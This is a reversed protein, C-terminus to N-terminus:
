RRLRLIEHPKEFNIAIGFIILKNRLECEDDLFKNGAGGGTIDSRQLSPTKGSAM